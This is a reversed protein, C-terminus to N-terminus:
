TFDSFFAIFTSLNTNDLPFLYACYVYQKTESLKSTNKEAQSEESLSIFSTIREDVAVATFVNM